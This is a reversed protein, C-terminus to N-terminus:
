VLSSRKMINEELSFQINTYAYINISAPNYSVAQLKGNKMTPYKCKLMNVDTENKLVNNAPHPDHIYKCIHVQVASMHHDSAFKCTDTREVM